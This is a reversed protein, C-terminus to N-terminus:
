PSNVMRIVKKNYKDLEIVNNNDPSFQSHPIVIALHFSLKVCPMMLFRGNDKELDDSGRGGRM